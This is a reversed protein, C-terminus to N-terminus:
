KNPIVKHMIKNCNERLDLNFTIRRARRKISRYFESPLCVVCPGALRCRARFYFSADVCLHPLPHLTFLSPPSQAGGGAPQSNLVELPLRYNNGDDLTAVGLRLVEDCPRWWDNWHQMNASAAVADARGAREVTSYVSIRTNDWM